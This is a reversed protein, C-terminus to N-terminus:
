GNKIKEYAKNKRDEYANNEIERLNKANETLNAKDIKLKSRIDGIMKQVRERAIAKQEKTMNKIQSRLTAIMDKAKESLDKKYMSTADTINKKVAKHQESLQDKAYAWQEKQTQSMGKTSHRGKLKRHKMYYEHAKVPDYDVSM